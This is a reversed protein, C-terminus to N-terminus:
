GHCLALAIDLVAAAMLVPEYVLPDEERESFFARKWFAIQLLRRGSKKVQAFRVLVRGNM